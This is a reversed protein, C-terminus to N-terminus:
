VTACGTLKVVSSDQVATSSGNSITARTYFYFSGTTRCNQAVALAKTLKVGKTTGFSVSQNTVVVDSSTKTTGSPIRMIKVNLTVLTSAATTTYTFTGSAKMCAVTSCTTVSPNTATVTGFPATAASAPLAPVVVLLALGALVGLLRTRTTTM